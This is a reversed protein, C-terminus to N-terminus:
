TEPAARDASCRAKAEDLRSILLVQLAGRSQSKAEFVREVL